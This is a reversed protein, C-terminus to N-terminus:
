ASGATYSHKDGSLSKGLFRGYTEGTKDRSQGIMMRVDHGHSTLANREVADNILLAFLADGDGVDAAEDISVSLDKGRATDVQKRKQRDTNSWLILGTM